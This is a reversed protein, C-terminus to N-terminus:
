YCKTQAFISDNVFGGVMNQSCDFVKSVSVTDIRLCAQQQSIKLEYLVCDCQQPYKACGAVFLAACLSIKIGKM